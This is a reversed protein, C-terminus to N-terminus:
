DRSPLSIHDDSESIVDDGLRLKVTVRLGVESSYSRSTEDVSVSVSLHERLLALLEERPIDAM